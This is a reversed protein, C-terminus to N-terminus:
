VTARGLVLFASEPDAGFTKIDAAAERIAREVDDTTCNGLRVWVVKPPPGRLFALQRFDEDKSVIVFGHEIAHRWVAPDDARIFGEHAVHSSDPFLDSLREVLKISINADFLLRM